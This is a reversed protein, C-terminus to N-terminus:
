DSLRRQSKTVGHVIAQWAGRDMAIRWSLVSSHTEMGEELPGVQDLCPVWTEWIAPLNKVMQAVLSAWCCQVPYGRGEGPSTGSGPISGPDGGNCASEKGASGGLYLLSSGTCSLVIKKKKKFLTSKIGLM